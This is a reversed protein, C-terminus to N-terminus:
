DRNQYILPLQTSFKAHFFKLKRSPLRPNTRQIELYYYWLESLWKVNFWPEGHYTYSLVDIKPVANHEAIWKGTRMQWWIDPETLSRLAWVFLVLVNCSFVILKLQSFKM